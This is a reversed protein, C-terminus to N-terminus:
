LPTFRWKCRWLDAYQGGSPHSGPWFRGAPGAPHETLVNWVQVSQSIMGAALIDGGPLQRLSKAEMDAPWSDVETLSNRSYAFVGQPGAALLTLPTSSWAIDSLGGHGFSGNRRSPNRQRDFSGRGALDPFQTPYDPPPNLRLWLIYAGLPQRPHHPPPIFRNAPCGLRKHFIGYSRGAM